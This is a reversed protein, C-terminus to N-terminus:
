QGSTPKWAAVLAKAQEIQAPTMKGAVNDRDKGADADGHAAALSWWLYAQVYDQPVDDGTFYSVALNHQADLNGRDAAKRWWKMAEVDDEALGEGKAYMEGLKFQAAADGQEALHSCAAVAKVPATKLLAASNNCDEADGAWAPLALGMALALAPAIAWRHM